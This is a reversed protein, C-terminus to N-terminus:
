GKSLGGRSRAAPAQAKRGRPPEPRQGSASVFCKVIHRPHHIMHAGRSVLRYRHCAPPNVPNEFPNIREPEEESPLPVTGGRHFDRSPAKVFRGLHHLNFSKISAEAPRFVSFSSGALPQRVPLAPNSQFARQFAPSLCPSGPSVPQTTRFRTMPECSNQCSPNQPLAFFHAGRLSPVM